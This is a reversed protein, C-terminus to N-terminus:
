ESGTRLKTQQGGNYHNAVRRCIRFPLAPRRTSAVSEISLRSLCPRGAQCRLSCPVMGDAVHVVHIGHGQRYGSPRSTGDNRDTHPHRGSLASLTSRNAPQHSTTSMVPPTSGQPGVGPYCGSAGHAATQAAFGFQSWLCLCSSPRQRAHCLRAFGTADQQRRAALCRSRSPHVLAGCGFSATQRLVRKTQIKQKRPVM